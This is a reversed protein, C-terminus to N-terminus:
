KTRAEVPGYAVVEEQLHSVSKLFVVRICLLYLPVVQISLESQNKSQQLSHPSLIVLLSQKATMAADNM